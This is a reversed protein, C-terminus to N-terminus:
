CPLFSYFEFLSRLVVDPDLTKRIPESPQSSGQPLIDLSGDSDNGSNCGEDISDDDLAILVNSASQPENTATESANNPDEKIIRLAEHLLREIM